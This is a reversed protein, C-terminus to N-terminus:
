EVEPMAFNEDGPAVRRKLLFLESMSYGKTRALVAGQRTVLFTTPLATVRGERTFQQTEDVFFGLDGLGLNALQRRTAELDEDASVVVFIDVHPGLFKSLQPLEKQCPGCWPAYFAVAARPKKMRDLLPARHGSPDVVPANPLRLPLELDDLIQSNAVASRPALTGRARRGCVMIIVALTVLLVLTVLDAGAVSRIRRAHWWGLRETPSV